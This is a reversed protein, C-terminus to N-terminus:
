RSPAERGAYIAADRGTMAYRLPRGAVAAVVEECAARFCRRHVEAINGAMHPTALVHPDSRFPADAPPPEQDFVDVAARVEGRGVRAWLRESDVVAMRTPVVLLSGRPLAAIVDSGIIGVTSPTAPIGVVLIESAGALETLSDMRRVGDAAMAAASVHPDCAMVQCSFPRLLKRLTRNIVGYGALGVARGSLEGSIFPEPEIWAATWGGARTLAVYRPLDRLLNLIMALCYEAVAPTMTRSTDVVVPGGDGPQRLRAGAIDEFRYDFTGAILRARPAADLWGPVTELGQGGWPACLVITADAAADAFARRRGDADAIGRLDVHRWDVATELLALADPMVYSGFKYQAAVLVALERPASSDTAGM